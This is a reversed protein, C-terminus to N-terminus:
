RGQLKYQCFAGAQRDKMKVPIRCLVFEQDCCPTNTKILHNCCITSTIEIDDVQMWILAFIGVLVHHNYLYSIIQATNWEHHLICM